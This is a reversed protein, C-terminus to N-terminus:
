GSFGFFVAQGCGNLRCSAQFIGGAQPLKESSLGWRTAVWMMRQQARGSVLRTAPTGSASPRRSGSVATQPHGRGSIWLSGVDGRVRPCLNKGMSGYVIPLRGDAVQGPAFLIVGTSM